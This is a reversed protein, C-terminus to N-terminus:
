HATFGRFSCPPADVATLTSRDASIAYTSTTGECAKDFLV